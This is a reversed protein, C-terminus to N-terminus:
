AAPSLARPRTHQPVPPLLHAMLVVSTSPSCAAPPPPPPPPRRAPLHTASILIPLNVLRRPWSPQHQLPAALLPHRLQLGSPASQRYDCPCQPSHRVIFNISLQRTKITQPAPCLPFTFKNSRQSQDSTASIRPTSSGAKIKRPQTPASQRHNEEKSSWPCFRKKM